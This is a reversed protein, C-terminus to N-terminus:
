APTTTQQQEGAPTTPKPTLALDASLTQAISAFSNALALLVGRARDAAATLRQQAAAASAELGALAYNLESGTVTDLEAGAATITAALNQSASRITALM